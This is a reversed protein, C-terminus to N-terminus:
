LQSLRPGWPALEAVPIGATKLAGWVTLTVSDLIPVGTEIEIAAATEAGALNTCLIVIAEVDQAAVKRVAKEVKEPPVTGFSFNDRIDFHIEAGCTLDYKIFNDVIKDQVDKTYPTVLGYRRVGLAKFAEMLSLVCTSAPIGTLNTIERVLAHDSDLGLWSASTGNWSILDVKAHSLLTAAELMRGTDFQALAAKDLAIETVTFRSFHVTTDSVVNIMRSTAPELVTNSSPTLMGIRHM